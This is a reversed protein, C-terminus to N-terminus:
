TESIVSVFLFFLFIFSSFFTTQHRLVPLSSLYVKRSKSENNLREITLQNLELQDSLRAAAMLGNKAEQLQQQLHHIETTLKAQNKREDDLQKLINSTRLEVDREKDLNLITM